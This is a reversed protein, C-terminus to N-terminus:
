SDARYGGRAGRFSKERGGGKAALFRGKAGGGPAAGRACYARLGMLCVSGVRFPKKRWVGGWGGLLRRLIM